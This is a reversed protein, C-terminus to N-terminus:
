GSQEDLHDTLGATLSRRSRAWASFLMKEIEHMTAVVHALLKEQLTVEFAREPERAAQRRRLFSGILRM